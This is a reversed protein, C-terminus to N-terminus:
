KTTHAWGFRSEGHNAIPWYVFFSKGIVNNRPFPGWGRSDYSRLTNDGMVMFDKAPVEFITQADPFYPALDTRPDLIGAQILKKAVTGNVHGFYHNEQFTPAFSYVNGFHPTSADLRVGNIRLHQDDGISVKEGGLAVLRKIYFQDQPLPEIGKTKFVIIEGRRPARFNYTMRNVFLHDGTTEKVRFVYDGKRFPLGASLGATTLFKNEIRPDSSQDPAFWITHPTLQERGNYKLWITQKNLFVLFKKPLDIKAVEGDAEAQIFHYFTGGVAADWIRGLADPIKKEPQNSTAQMPEIEIGYLTPQMSGTPIKFPQLFFTRIAMAVAIAVLFVEVNERWKANPYPRLWKQAAAELSATKKGLTEKDNEDMAKQTEALASDVAAIAPPSLLDRQANLLKRVHKCLDSAEGVAKSSLWRFKMM